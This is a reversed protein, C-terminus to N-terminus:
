SEGRGPWAAPSTASPILTRKSMVGLPLVLPSSRVGAGVPPTMLPMIVSGLLGPSAHLFLLYLRSLRGAGGEGGLVRYVGMVPWSGRAVSIVLVGGVPTRLM